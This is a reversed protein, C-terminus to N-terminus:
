PCAVRPTATGARATVISLPRRGALRGSAPAAAPTRHSAPVSLDVGERQVGGLATVARREVGDVEVVLAQSKGEM